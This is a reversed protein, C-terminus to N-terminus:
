SAWPGAWELRILKFQLSRLRVVDSWMVSALSGGFPSGLAQPFFGGRTVDKV